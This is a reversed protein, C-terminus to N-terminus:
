KLVEDVSRTEVIPVGEDAEVYWADIALLLVLIESHM